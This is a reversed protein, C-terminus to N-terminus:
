VFDWVTRNAIDNVHLRQELLLPYSLYLWRTGFVGHSDTKVVLLELPILM